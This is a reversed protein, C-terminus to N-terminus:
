VMIKMCGILLSSMHKPPGIKKNKPNQPCLIRKNDEIYEWQTGM